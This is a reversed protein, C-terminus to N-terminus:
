RYQKDDHKSQERKRVPGTSLFVDEGGSRCRVLFVLAKRELDTLTFRVFATKGEQLTRIVGNLCPIARM